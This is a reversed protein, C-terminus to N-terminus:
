DTEEKLVLKVNHAFSIEGYLETKLVNLIFFVNALCNWFSKDMELIDSVFFAFIKMNVM